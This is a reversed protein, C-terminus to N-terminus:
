EIRPQPVPKEGRQFAWVPESAWGADWAIYYLGRAPTKESHHILQATFTVLSRRTTILILIYPVM